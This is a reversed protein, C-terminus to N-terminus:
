DKSIAIFGGVVCLLLFVAAALGAILWFIDAIPNGIM